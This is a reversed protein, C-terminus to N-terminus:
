FRANVLFLLENPRQQRMELRADHRNALAMTFAAQVTRPTLEECPATGDIMDSVPNPLRAGEGTATVTVGPGHTSVAPTLVLRGGRPLAESALLMLNCALKQWDPPLPQPPWECAIKGGTFLDITAARAVDDAIATTSGYAIRYFQLRCAAQKASQAILAGADRAFEPEDELIELGNLIAGVPSVMEHCLRAALVEAIKLDFATTAM